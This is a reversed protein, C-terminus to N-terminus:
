RACLIAGRRRQIVHDTLASTIFSAAVLTIFMREGIMGTGLAFGAMAIGPGGRTNMAIAYFINSAQGSKFASLCLWVVGIKLCSSWLVFTLMEKVDLATGISISAGIVAFYLPVFSHEAAQWLSSETKHGEDLNGYVIGACLAAIMVEAEIIIALLVFGGLLVIGCLTKNKHLKKATNEYRLLPTRICLCFLGLAYLTLNPLSATFASLFGLQADQHVQHAVGLLFWLVLDVVCASMLLTNSFSTGLLGHGYLIKTLFPVSTVAVCLTVVLHLSTVTNEGLSFLNAGYGRPMIYTVSLFAPVLVALSAGILIWSVSGCDKLTTRRISQGAIFMLVSLGTWYLGQLVIDELQAVPGAATRDVLAAVNPGLAIGVGLAVLFEPLRLLRSAYTCLLTIGAFSILAAAAQLPILLEPM